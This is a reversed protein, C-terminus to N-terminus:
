VNQEEKKNLWKAWPANGNLWMRTLDMKDKLTDM